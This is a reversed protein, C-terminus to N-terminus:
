HKNTKNERWKVIYGLVKSAKKVYKFVHRSLIRFKWAKTINSSPILSSKAILENEWYETM